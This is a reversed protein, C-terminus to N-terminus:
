SRMHRIVEEVEGAADGDDGACAAPESLIERACEGFGAGVEDEGAAAAFRERGKFFFDPGEAAAGGGEFEVDAILLVDLFKSRSGFVDVAMEVDQDVIGAAVNALGREFDSPIIPIQNEVCIQAAAKEDRLGDCATHNRAVVAADDVDTGDGADGTVGAEARVACAAASNALEGHAEGVIPAFVADGHVAERGSPEARCL